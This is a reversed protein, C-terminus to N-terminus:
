DKNKTEHAAPLETGAEESLEIVKKNMIDHVDNTFARLKTSDSINM